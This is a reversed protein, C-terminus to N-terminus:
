TYQKSRPASGSRSRSVSDRPNESSKKSRRLKGAQIKEQTYTYPGNKVRRETKRPQTKGISTRRPCMNNRLLAAIRNPFVAGVKARKENYLASPIRIKKKKTILNPKKRNCTNSTSSVNRLKSHDKGFFIPDFKTQKKRQTQIKQQTSHQNKQIQKTKRM